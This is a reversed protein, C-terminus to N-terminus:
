DCIVQELETMNLDFYSGSLYGSMRRNSLDFKYFKGVEYSFLNNSDTRLYLAGEKDIGRFTLTYTTRNQERDTPVFYWAESVNTLTGGVIGHFGGIQGYNIKKDLSKALRECSNFFLFYYGLILGILIILCIFIWILKKM